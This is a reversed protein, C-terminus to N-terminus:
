QISAKGIVKFNDVVFFGVPFALNFIFALKNQLMDFLYIKSFALIKQM